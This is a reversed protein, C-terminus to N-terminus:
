LLCIRLTKNNAKQHIIVTYGARSYLLLCELSCLPGGLTALGIFLHCDVNTSRLLAEESAKTM